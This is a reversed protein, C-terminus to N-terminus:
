NRRNHKDRYYKCLSIDELERLELVKERAYRFAEDLDLVHRIVTYLNKLDHREVRYGIVNYSYIVWDNNIRDFDVTVDSLAGNDYVFFRVFESNSYNVAFRVNHNYLYM